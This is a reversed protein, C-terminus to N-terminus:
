RKMLRIKQKIRQLARRHKHAEVAELEYSYLRELRNIAREIDALAEKRSHVTTNIKSDLKGIRTSQHKALRIYSDLADEMHKINEAFKTHTKEEKAQKSIIRRESEITEQISQELKKLHKHLSPTSIRKLAALELALKQRALERQAIKQSAIALHKLYIRATSEEM